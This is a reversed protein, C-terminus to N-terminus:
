GRRRPLHIEALMCRVSGGGYAELTPIAAAVIAGHAELKRRQPATFAGWAETSMALVPGDRGRLELQNAAFAHMQAKSLEILARGSAELRSRVEERAEREHIAELCVVALSSGVSMLVDTHYIAQGREDTAHFPLTAYGLRAAFDALAQAHTRPSLCAYAVRQIRDLVLSGTAELYRGELEHETLDVIRGIEYGRENELAQLLEGRRERRRNPALMPYLVATGDAHFSVWNSPFVEDPTDAAHNGAFIEVRVGAAGLAVAVRDVEIRAREAIETGSGPQQFFNSALTEPNSGFRRPRLMLVANATQTEAADSM